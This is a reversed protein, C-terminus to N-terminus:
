TQGATAPDAQAASDLHRHIQRALYRKLCRRIKRLTHGEATRREVYARTAPDMRMGTVIAMHLARNLRRDGGRNLRYRVM